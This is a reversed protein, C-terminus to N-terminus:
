KHAGQVVGVLGFILFIMVLVGVVVMFVVIVGFTQFCLVWRPATGGLLFIAIGTQFFYYPLKRAVGLYQDFFRLMYDEGLEGAALMTFVSVLMSFIMGIIGMIYSMLNLDHWFREDLPQQLWHTAIYGDQALEIWDNNFEYALPFVITLLLASLLSLQVNEDYIGM